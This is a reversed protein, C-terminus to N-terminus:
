KNDRNALHLIWSLASLDFDGGMKEGGGWRLIKLLIDEISNNLNLWFMM